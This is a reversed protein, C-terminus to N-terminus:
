SGRLQEAFGDEGEVQLDTDGATRDLPAVALYEDSGVEGGTDFATREDGQTVILMRDDALLEVPAMNEGATAWEAAAQLQEATIQIDFM